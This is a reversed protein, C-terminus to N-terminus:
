PCPDGEDWYIMRATAPTIAQPMEFPGLYNSNPCSATTSPAEYFGGSPLPWVCMWYTEATTGWEVPTQAQALLFDYVQSYGPIM